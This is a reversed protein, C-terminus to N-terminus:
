PPAGVLLFIPINILGGGGAISDIFGSIFFTLCLFVVIWFGFELGM